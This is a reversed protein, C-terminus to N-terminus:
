TSSRYNLDGRCKACPLVNCGHPRHYSATRWSDLTKELEALEAQDDENMSLKLKAAREKLELFTM